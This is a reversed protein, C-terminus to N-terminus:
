THCDRLILVTNLTGLSDRVWEAVQLSSFAFGFLGCVMWYWFTSSSRSSLQVVCVCWLDWVLLGGASDLCFYILKPVAFHRVFTWDVVLNSSKLLKEPDGPDAPSLQCKSGTSVGQFAIRRTLGCCCILILDLWVRPTFISCSVKSVPTASRGPVRTPMAHRHVILESFDRNSHCAWGVGPRLSENTFIMINKYVSPNM